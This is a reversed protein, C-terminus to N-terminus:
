TESTQEDENEPLLLEPTTITPVYLGLRSNIVRIHEFKNANALHRCNWTLLFDVKHLSAMALHGADATANAPMLRQEVYYEIVDRLSLPPELIEVEKILRLCREAKRAPAASPERVVLRSTRLEYAQRHKDWWRQTAERWAIAKATRRTEFYYSPITTEIYVSPM